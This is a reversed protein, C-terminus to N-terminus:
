RKREGTSSRLLGVKSNGAQSIWCAMEAGEQRRISALASSRTYPKAELIALPETNTKNEFPSSRRCLYGDLRAEMLETMLMEIKGTKSNKSLINKKLKLPLRRALWDLSSFEVGVGLKIGFLLDLLATNVYYEDTAPKNVQGGIAPHYSTAQPTRDIGFIPTDQETPDDLMSKFPTMPRNVAPPTSMTNPEHDPAPEPKSISSNRRIEDATTEKDIDRTMSHIQWYLASAFSACEKPPGLPQSPVAMGHSFGSAQTGTHRIWEDERIRLEKIYSQWMCRKEDFIRNATALNEASVYGKYGTKPDDVMM